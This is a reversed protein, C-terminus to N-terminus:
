TMTGGSYWCSPQRGASCNARTPPLWGLQEDTAARRRAARGDLPDPRKEGKIGKVSAAFLMPAIAEVLVADGELVDIELTAAFTLGPFSSSSTIEDVTSDDARNGTSVAYAFRPGVHVLISDSVLISATIDGFPVYLDIDPSKADLMSPNWYLMGVHVGLAFQETDVINVGTYLNFRTFIDALFVTGVELGDIIGVKISALGIQIEGGDLIYATFDTLRSEPSIKANVNAPIAIWFLLLSVSIFRFIPSKEETQVPCSRRGDFQETSQRM